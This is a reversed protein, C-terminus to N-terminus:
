LGEGHFSGRFCIVVFLIGRSDNEYYNQPMRHERFTWSLFGNELFQAHSFPIKGCITEESHTKTLLLKADSPLRSFFFCYVSFVYANEQRGKGSLRGLSLGPGTGPVVPCFPMKVTSNFLCRGTTGPVSGPNDWPRNRNTGSVTVTLININIPKEEQGHFLKSHTSM